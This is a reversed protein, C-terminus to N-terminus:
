KEKLTSTFKYIKDGVEYDDFEVDVDEETAIHPKLLGLRVAMDQLECGDPEIFEWCYGRIVHRAFEKLKNNEALLMTERAKLLGIIETKDEM